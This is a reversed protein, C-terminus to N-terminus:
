SHGRLVLKEWSDLATILVTSWVKNHNGERIVFRILSRILFQALQPKPLNAPIHAQEKAFTREWKSSTPPYQLLGGGCATPHM